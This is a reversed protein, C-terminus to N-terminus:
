GRSEETCWNDSETLQLLQGPAGGEDSHALLQVLDEAALVLALVGDEGGNRVM